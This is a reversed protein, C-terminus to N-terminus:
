ADIKLQAEIWTRTEAHLQMKNRNKLYWNKCADKEFHGQALSAGRWDCLMELRYKKEMPMIKIGGEDEPLIWWQWHHKNRKQHYLWAMDFKSDGTDTPKYYGTPDRKAPNKGYFHNAYPFFESSRLKSLDHMIGQIYLGNKFCELM